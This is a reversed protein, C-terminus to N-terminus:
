CCCLKCICNISHNEEVLSPILVRKKRTHARKSISPQGKHESPLPIGNDELHLHSFFFFCKLGPTSILRSDKAVWTSGTEPFSFDFITTPTPILAFGFFIYILIFLYPPHKFKYIVKWSGRPMARSTSFCFCM